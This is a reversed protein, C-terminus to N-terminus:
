IDYTNVFPFCFTKVVLTLLDHQGAPHLETQQPFSKLLLQFNHLYEPDKAEFIIKNMDPYELEIVKDATIPNVSRIKNMRLIKNEGANFISIHSKEALSFFYGSTPKWLNLVPDDDFKLQAVWTDFVKLGGGEAIKIRRGQVFSKEFETLMSADIPISKLAEYLKKNFQILGSREQIIDSSDM